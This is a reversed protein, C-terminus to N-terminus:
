RTSAFLLMIKEHENVAVYDRFEQHGSRLEDALAQVVAKLQNDTTDLARLADGLPDPSTAM